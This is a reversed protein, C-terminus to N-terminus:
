KDTTVVALNEPRMGPRYGMDYLHRYVALLEHFGVTINGAGAALLVARDAPSLRRRFQVTYTRPLAM